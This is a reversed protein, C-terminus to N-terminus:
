ALDPFIHKGTSDLPLPKAWLVASLPLIGYLHPFLRGSRSPEYRLADGLLAEEVALLVLGARGTFHAAATEAVQGSTSLHIFGQARDIPSGAFVGTNRADTWEAETCIKFVPKKM